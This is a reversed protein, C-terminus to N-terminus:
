SQFRLARGFGLRAAAITCGPTERRAPLSHPPTQEPRSACSAQPASPTIPAAPSRAPPAGVTTVEAEDGGAAQTLFTHARAQNTHRQM